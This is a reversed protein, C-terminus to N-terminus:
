KRKILTSSEKTKKKEKRQEQELEEVQSELISLQEVIIKKEKNIKKEEASLRTILDQYSNLSNLAITYQQILGQIQKLKETPTQACGVTESQKRWIPQQRRLYDTVDDYERWARIFQIRNAARGLVERIEDEENEPCCIIKVDEHSFVFGESNPYRWEREWMYGQRDEDELLPFLLPYIRTIMKVIHSNIHQDESLQEETEIMQNYLYIINGVLEGGAYIAPRIGQTVLTAKDFGLGFRQDSSWRRFSRYRFFDLAFTPSETFCVVEADYVGQSNEPVGARLYGYSDEIRASVDYGKLIGIISNKGTMHVLFPSMDPKEIPTLRFTPTDIEYDKWTVGSSPPPLPM